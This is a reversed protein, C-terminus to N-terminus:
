KYKSAYFKLEREFLVPFRERAVSKMLSQVSGSEFERTVQVSNLPALQYGSSIMKGVSKGSRSKIIRHKPGVHVWLKDGHGPLRFAGPPIKSRRNRIIAVHYNRTASIISVRKRVAKAKMNKIKLRIATLAKTRAASATKNLARPIAKNIVDKRLEFLKVKLKHIDAEVSVDILILGLAWYFVRLCNLM